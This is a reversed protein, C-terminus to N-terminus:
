RLPTDLASLRLLRCPSTRFEPGASPCTLFVTFSVPRTTEVPDTDWIGSRHRIGNITYATAGPPLQGDAAQDIATIWADPVVATDITLWQRTQYGRLQAWAEATPLYSRVDSALADPEADAAVDALIQAYDAPSNSATNWTFLAQAVHQAFQKPDTTVPIKVPGAGEVTGDDHGTSAPPREHTTTDSNQEGPGRVLGYIGIGVLVALVIGGAIASILLRRRRRDAAPEM